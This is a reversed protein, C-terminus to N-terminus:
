YRQAKTANKSKKVKRFPSLSKNGLGNYPTAVFLTM